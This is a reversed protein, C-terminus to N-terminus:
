AKIAIIKRQQPPMVSKGGSGDGVPLGHPGKIKKVEMSIM